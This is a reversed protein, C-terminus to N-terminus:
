SPLKHDALIVLFAKKLSSLLTLLTTILSLLSHHYKLPKQKWRLIFLITFMLVFSLPFAKVSLKHIPNSILVITKTDLSSNNSYGVWSVLSLFDRSLKRKRHSGSYDCYFYIELVTNNWFWNLSTQPAQLTLPCSTQYPMEERSM